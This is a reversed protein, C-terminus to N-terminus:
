TQVM